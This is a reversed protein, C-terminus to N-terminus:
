IVNTYGKCLIRPAKAGNAGAWGLSCRELFEPLEEISRRWFKQNWHLSGSKRRYFVPTMM